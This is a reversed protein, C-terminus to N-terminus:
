LLSCIILKLKFDSVFGLVVLNLLILGEHIWTQDSVDSSILRTDKDSM